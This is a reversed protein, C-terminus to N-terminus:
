STAVGPNHIAVGGDGIRSANSMVIEVNVPTPSAAAVTEVGDLVQVGRGVPVEVVLIGFRHDRHQSGIVLVDHFGGGAIHADGCGLTGDAVTGAVLLILGVGVTRPNDGGRAGRFVGQLEGFEFGFGTVLHGDIVATGGVAGHELIIFAVVQHGSARNNGTNGSSDVAIELTLGKRCSHRDVGVAHMHNEGGIAIIFGVITKNQFILGGGDAGISAGLDGCRDGAVLPVTNEGVFGVVFLVVVVEITWNAGARPLEAHRLSGAIGEVKHLKVELSTIKNFDIVGRGIRLIRHQSTEVGGIRRSTREIHVGATHRHFEGGVVPKFTRAEFEFEPFEGTDVVM